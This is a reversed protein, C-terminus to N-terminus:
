VDSSVVPADTIAEYGPRTPTKREDLTRYVGYIVVVIVQLCFCVNPKM